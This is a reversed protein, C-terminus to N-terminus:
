CVVCWNWYENTICSMHGGLERPQRIRLQLKNTPTPRHFGAKRVKQAHKLRGNDGRSRASEVQKPTAGNGGNEATRAAINAVTVGINGGERSAM